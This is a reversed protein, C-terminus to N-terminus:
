TKGNCIHDLQILQHQLNQHITEQNEFKIGCYELTIIDPNSHKLVWDLLEYDEHSMSQHTDAPFGDSDYGSGNVHIEKIRNLPLGRLYDYINWQRYLATIKAHTLDLLFGVDNDNLLSAIKEAEAYPYHNFVTRDQPSDPINELLLPVSINKKFINIQRYMHIYVEKGEMNPLDGNEIALHLGYHPSGCSAILQNARQFDVNEINQMGSYEGCGLGHLLIPKLSRMEDFQKEFEGYAGAKIYDIDVQENIILAALSDSWNCGLKYMLDGGNSCHFNRNTGRPMHLLSPCAAVTGQPM